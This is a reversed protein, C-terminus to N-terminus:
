HRYRTQDPDAKEDHMHIAVELDKGPWLGEVVIGVRQAGKALRNELIAMEEGEEPQESNDGEKDMDIEGEIQRALVDLRAAIIAIDDLLTHLCRGSREGHAITTDEDQEENDVVEHLEGPADLCGQGFKFKAGGIGVKNCAKLAPPIDEE